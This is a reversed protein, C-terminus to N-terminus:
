QETEKTTRRAKDNQDMAELKEICVARGCHPVPEGDIWRPREDKAPSFCMVCCGAVLRASM